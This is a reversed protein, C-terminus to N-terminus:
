ECTLCELGKGLPNRFGRITDFRVYATKKKRGYMCIIFNLKFMLCLLLYVVIILVLFDYCYGIIFIIKFKYTTEEHFKGNLLKLGNHVMHLQFWAFHPQPYHAHCPVGSTKETITLSVHLM